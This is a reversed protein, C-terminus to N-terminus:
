SGSDEDNYHKRSQKDAVPSEEQQKTHYMESAPDFILVKNCLNVFPVTLRRQKVFGSERQEAPADYQIEGVVM